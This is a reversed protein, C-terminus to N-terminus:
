AADILRSSRPLSTIERDLQARRQVLLNRTDSILTLISLLAEESELRGQSYDEIAAQKLQALRDELFDIFEGPLTPAADDREDGQLLREIRDIQRLHVDPHVSRLGRLFGWLALAGAGGAGLVSLFNTLPELLENVDMPRRGQAFAAAGPHLPFENNVNEHDLDIGYHRAPGKDVARLLRLVANSPVDKHAIL